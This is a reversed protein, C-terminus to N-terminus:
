SFPGFVAGQPGRPITAWNISTLTAGQVPSWPAPPGPQPQAWHGWPGRPPCCTQWSSGAQLPLKEEKGRHDATWLLAALGPFPGGYLSPPGSSALPPRPRRQPEPTLALHSARPGLSCPQCQAMVLLSPPPVRPVGSRARLHSPVCLRQGPGPPGWSFRFGVGCSLPPPSGLPFPLQFQM